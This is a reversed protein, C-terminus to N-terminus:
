DGLITIKFDNKNEIYNYNPNTMIENVYNTYLLFKSNIDNIIEVSKKDDFSQSFKLTEYFSSKHTKIIQYYYSIYNNFSDSVKKLKDLTEQSLNTSTINSAISNLSNIILTELQSQHESIKGWILEYIELFEPSNPQRGRLVDKEIIEVSKLIANISAGLQIYINDNFHDPNDISDQNIKKANEYYNDYAAKLYKNPSNELKNHKAEVKSFAENYTNKYPHFSFSSCSSAALAAPLSLSLIFLKKFPKKM